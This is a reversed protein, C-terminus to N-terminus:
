PERSADLELARRWHQIACEDDRAKMCLRALSRHLRGLVPELEAAQLAEELLARGLDIRGNEAFRETIISLSAAVNKLYEAPLRLHIIQRSTEQAKAMEHTRIYLVALDHLGEAQALKQSVEEGAAQAAGSRDQPRGQDQACFFLAVALIGARTKPYHMNM